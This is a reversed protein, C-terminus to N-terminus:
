IVSEGNEATETNYDDATIQVQRTFQKIQKAYEGLLKANDADLVQAVGFVPKSYTIGDASKDKTLTVKTLVQYSRRGKGVIRQGKYDSFNKLGTPPVTLLLPFVNGQQLLYVRRMNKCAKGRGDEASGFVNYPCTNCAVIEGTDRVIGKSGDLSACDPPNNEGNYKVQWFANVAHDDLIVGQLEKVAEPNDPDDGPIEFVIGGGSPIKVREFSFRLGDMEESFIEAMATSDAVIEPLYCTGVPVPLNTNGSM